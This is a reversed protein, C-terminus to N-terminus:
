ARRGIMGRARIRMKEGSQRGPMLIFMMMAISMPVAMPMIAWNKRVLSKFSVKESIWIKKSPMPLCSALTMVMTMAPSNKAFPRVEVPEMSAMIWPAWVVPKPADPRVSTMIAMMATQAMRMPLPLAGKKAKALRTGAIAALVPTAAEKMTRGICRMALEARAMEGIVPTMITAEPMAPMLGKSRTFRVAMGIATEQMRM